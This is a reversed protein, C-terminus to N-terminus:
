PPKLTIRFELTRRVRRNLGVKILTVNLNRLVGGQLPSGM